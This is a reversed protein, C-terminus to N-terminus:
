LRGDDSSFTHSDMWDYPSGPSAWAWNSGHPLEAPRQSSTDAKQALQVPARGSQVVPKSEEMENM